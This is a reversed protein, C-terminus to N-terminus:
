SSLYDGFYKMKKNLNIVKLLKNIKEKNIM